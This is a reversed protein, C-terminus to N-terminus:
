EINDNILIHRPVLKKNPLAKHYFVKLNNKNIIDIGILM